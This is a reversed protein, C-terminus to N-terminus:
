MPAKEDSISAIDLGSIFACSSFVRVLAEGTASVASLFRACGQESSQEGVSM